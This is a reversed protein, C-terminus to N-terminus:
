PGREKTWYWPHNNEPPPNAIKANPYVRYSTCRGAQDLQRTTCIPDNADPEISPSVPFVTELLRFSVWAVVGLPIALSYRRFLRPFPTPVSDTITTERM